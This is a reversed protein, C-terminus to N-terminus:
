SGLSKRYLNCLTICSQSLDYDLGKANTSTHPKGLVPQIVHMRAIWRRPTEVRQSEGGIGLLTRSHIPCCHRSTYCVRDTHAITPFSNHVSICTASEGPQRLKAAFRIPFMDPLLRIFARERSVLHPKHKETRPQPYVAHENQERCQIVLTIFYIGPPFRVIFAFRM